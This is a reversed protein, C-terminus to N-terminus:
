KAERPTFGLGVGSPKDNAKVPSSIVQLLLESLSPHLPDSTAIRPASSRAAPAKPTLILQDIEDHCTSALTVLSDSTRSM